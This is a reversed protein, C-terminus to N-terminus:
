PGCTWGRGAGLQQGSAGYATWHVFRLGKRVAFVYNKSKGVTVPQVTAVSGDAMRLRLSSVSPAAVGLYIMTGRSPGCSMYTTLQGKGILPFLGAVCDGIPGGEFCLGWPGVYAHVPSSPGGPITSAIKITARAPGQQGPRLWGIFSNNGYPVAYAIEGGASYAVANVIRLRTPVVVAVWRHGRYAVPHLDLVTGGPLSMAVDTVDKAVVAVLATRSSSGVSNFGVPAGGITLTAVSFSALGPGLAMIRDGSGTLSVRWPKGNIAGTAILGVPANRGPPNVTVLYSPQTPPPQTALRSLGPVAAGLGLVVALGAAMGIRRRVRITRGQRIVTGVPPSAPVITDLAGGLRDRIERENDSNM